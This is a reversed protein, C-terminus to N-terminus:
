IEGKFTIDTEREVFGLKKYLNLANKNDGYVNLSAKSLNAEKIINICHNIAAEGFGKGRFESYVTVNYIYGRNIDKELNIAATATEKGDQEIFFVYAAPNKFTIEFSKETFLEDGEKKFGANMIDIYKKIDEIGIVRINCTDAPIVRYDIASLNLDMKWSYKDPKFGRKELFDISQPMREKAFATVDKVGCEKGHELIRNYLLSGLGQRRYDPHVIIEFNAIEPKSINKMCGAFGILTDGLYAVFMGRRFEDNSLVFEILQDPISMEFNDRSNMVEAFTKMNGVDERELNKIVVNSLDM